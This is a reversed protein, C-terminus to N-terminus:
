KRFKANILNEDLDDRDAAQFAQQWVRIKSKVSELTSAYIMKKKIQATDPIWSIFILQGAGGTGDANMPPTYDYLVFRGEDDPLEKLFDNFTTGQEGKKDVIVKSSEIKMTMYKCTKKINLENALTVCEDSIDIGSM